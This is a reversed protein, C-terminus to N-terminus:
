WENYGMEMRIPLKIYQERCLPIVWKLDPMIEYNNLSDTNIIIPEEIEMQTVEKLNNDWLRATLYHLEHTDGHIVLVEQWNEKFTDVGVEEKFERIMAEVTGEQHKIKGGVGNLKGKQFEPKEKRILIVKSESKNFAFGCVYRIM